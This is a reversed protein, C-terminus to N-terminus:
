LKEAPIGAKLDSLPVHRAVKLHGDEWESAERVDVIVAKKEKLTKKITELTDTTHDAASLVAGSCCGVVLVCALRMMMFEVLLVLNRQPMQLAAM